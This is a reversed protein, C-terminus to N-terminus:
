RTVFPFTVYQFFNNLLNWFLILYWFTFKYIFCLKVRQILIYGMILNCATYEDSALIGRFNMRVLPLFFSFLLCYWLQNILLRSLSQNHLVIDRSYVMRTLMAICFSTMFEWGYQIVWWVLVNDFNDDVIM